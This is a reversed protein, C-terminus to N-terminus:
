EILKLLEDIDENKVSEINKRWEGKRNNKNIKFTISIYDKEFFEPFGVSVGPSSIKNILEAAKYNMSSYDPYRIRFIEAYLDSDNKINSGSVFPLEATKGARAIDFLHDAMKKFINVRIPISSIWGSLWDLMTSEFSLLDKITKYNIDKEDIYELIYPPLALIKDRENQKEIFEMPLGTIKRLELPIITLDENFYKDFINLAKIRGVPGAGNRFLKLILNKLFLKRDPYLIVSSNLKNIGLNSCIRVRNHCNMLVFSNDKKLLLPKELMGFNKISDYLDDRLIKRSINFSEDDIDIREIDIYEEL